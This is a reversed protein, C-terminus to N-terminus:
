DRRATLAHREILRFPMSPVPQHFLSVADIALADRCLPEVLLALAQRLREGEAAVLRCSLTMHFRFEAMVYPYGWRQLLADQAPSLTARRRKALEAEDPPARFPDLEAVCAAALADMALCPRSLVLAWFGSIAALKLPPAAFAAHRAAFSAVADRLATANCGEALRFPPKLTAHFGYQRAEATIEAIRTPSFGSVPAQVLADGTAADYGLWRSGFRHLDTNAQPAFYLAFRDESAM